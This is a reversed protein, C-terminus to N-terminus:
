QFTGGTADCADACQCIANNIVREVFRGFEIGAGMEAVCAMHSGLMSGLVYSCQADTVGAEDLMMWLQNSLEECAQRDLGVGPRFVERLTDKFAQQEEANM